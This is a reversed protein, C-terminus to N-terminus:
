TIPRNRGCSCCRRRARQGDWYTVESACECCTHPKPPRNLTTTVCKVATAGFSPEPPDSQENKLPHIQGLIGSIPALVDVYPFKGLHVKAVFPLGSVPSGSM